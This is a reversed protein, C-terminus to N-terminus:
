SQGGRSGRPVCGPRDEGLASRVAGLAHFSDVDFLLALTASDKVSVAHAAADLYQGLSAM